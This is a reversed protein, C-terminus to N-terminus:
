IFPNRRRKFRQYPSIGSFPDSENKYRQYDEEFILDSARKGMTKQLMNSVNDIKRSGVSRMPDFDLAKYQVTNETFLDEISMVQGDTIFDVGYIAMRSVHGYENAFAVTIDIPPLQDLIATTFATADFDTPHVDLLEYLVHKNFVTFIMSGAISRPGRTIGKPYVTGLSRVDQKDRYTSITLSSCEALVKTTLSPAADVTFKVLEDTAQLSIQYQMIEQTLRLRQGSYIFFEPTGPKVALLKQEIGSLTGEAVNIAKQVQAAKEQLEVINDQVGVGTRPLHVALKIDCGAYSTNNVFVSGSLKVATNQENLDM